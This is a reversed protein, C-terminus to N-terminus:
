HRSEHRSVIAGAGCLAATAVFALKVTTGWGRGGAGHAVGVLMPGGAVIAVSLLVAVLVINAVRRAVFKL